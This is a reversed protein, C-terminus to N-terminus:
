HQENKRESCLVWGWLRHGRTEARKLFEADGEGLYSEPHLSIFASPSPQHGAPPDPVRCDGGAKERRESRQGPVARRNGIDTLFAALLSIVEGV